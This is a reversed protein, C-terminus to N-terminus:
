WSGDRRSGGSWCGRCWCQSHFEEAPLLEGGAALLGTVPDAHVHVVDAGAVPPFSAAAVEDGAGDRGGGARVHLGGGRVRAVSSFRWPPSYPPAETTIVREM